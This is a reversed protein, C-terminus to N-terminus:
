FAVAARVFNSRYPTAKSEQGTTSWASETSYESSTWYSIVSGSKSFRDGGVLELSAEVYTVVSKLATWEKISPLFWKGRQCFDKTCGTPLYTNVEKAPEYSGGCSTKLLIDTFNRGAGECLQPHWGDTCDPISTNCTSSSWVYTKSSVDRLAIALRNEADFVVGIPTTGAEYGDSVSGDGYLISGVKVEASAKSCYLKSLDFPCKLINKAGACDSSSQVYGLQECTPAVACTAAQAAPVFAILAPLFVGFYKECRKSM